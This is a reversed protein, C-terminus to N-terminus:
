THKKLIHCLRSIEDFTNFSHFSIRLREKGKPVTPEFIAKVLLKEAILLREVERISLCFHSYIPSQLVENLNMEQSFFALNRMLVRHEKGSFELFALHHSRIEELQSFAPGTTYIFARSYNVLYQKLTTSGVICAGHTGMAKGFTHIRAFCHEKGLLEYWGKRNEGLIGTSHAEDIILYFSYNKKLNKLAGVDPFDGDMSYIGELVVYINEYQHQHKILLEELKNIQNHAFAISKAFSLRLGDRISAHVYEDYIVLDQRQPLCSFFGLNADYGSHYLLSAEADYFRSLFFELDEAEQSNGSILRSGTAGSKTKFTVCSLTKSLGLYDNSLFDSAKQPYIHLQRLVGEKQRKELKHLLCKPFM